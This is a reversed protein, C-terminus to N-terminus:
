FVFINVNNLSVKIIPISICNLNVIGNNITLRKICVIPNVIVM